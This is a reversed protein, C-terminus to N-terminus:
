ALQQAQARAAPLLDEVVARVVDDADGSGPVPMFIFHEVGAAVYDRLRQTVEAPTGVAAVNDIMKQFDQNYTGGMASAAEQRARTGDKDVNVFVFAYWEFRSLDRGAAAALERITRVSAGYRRPSYLYPMWGDGVLAARSMAKGKRGAVVIPPGGPQAPAPHVRVDAMPYFPGDHTIEAATWLRRLLPIAEDLRRGRETLPVQCASFEQPYEGGIGVGLTLRGGTALDLDAAQKAIIAPAYLPLLLISTGLRVRETVASLRALTMMAEPSPNRSAIHGGTWLSDIPLQELRAARRLDGGVVVGVQVPRSEADTM